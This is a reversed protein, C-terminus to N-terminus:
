GGMYLDNPSCGLASCLKRVTDTRPYRIGLEIRSVTERALGAASALDKQSLGKSERIKKLSRGLTEDM